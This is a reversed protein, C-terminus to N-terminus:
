HVEYRTFRLDYITFRVEDLFTAKDEQIEVVCIDRDAPKKEELRENDDGIDNKEHDTQQSIQTEPLECM